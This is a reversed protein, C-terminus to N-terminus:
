GNVVDTAIEAIRDFLGRVQDRAKMSFPGVKEDLVDPVGQWAEKFTDFHLHGIGMDKMLGRTKWTNSEWTAFPRGLVASAIAAHFRGVCLREFRCLKALYDEPRDVKPSFGRRTRWRLPGWCLEDKVANDTRGVGKGPGAPAFSRLRESAFLVDPIVDCAAGSARIAAASFSERAAVLRFEGLLESPPNEEWVTNVLVAPKLRAVELVEVYRGHHFTGEGNVVVLDAGEVAAQWTGAAGPSMPYANVLELGTPAFQERFTECM